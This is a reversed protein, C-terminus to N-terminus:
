DNGNRRIEPAARQPTDYRLYPRAAKYEILAEDLDPLMERVIGADLAKTARDYVALRLPIPVETESLWV